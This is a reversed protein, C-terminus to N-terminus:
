TIRKAVMHMFDKLLVGGDEIVLNKFEEDNMLVGMEYGVYKRLLTRLDADTHAYVYRLLTVIDGTRARHLTYGALAYHLEELALTKLPQIDYQDAFAYLRAHSLFVETYDENDERNVPTSPVTITDRRVTYKRRLFLEKLEQATKGRKTKRVIKTLFERTRDTELEVCSFGGFSPDGFRPVEVSRPNFRVITDSQLDVVPEATECEEKQPPTPSPPSNIEIKIDAPTYYGKYAWEIFRRFTGGDVEKLVAFGNEAEAMHGNIMCGLPRSHHSVLDAHIYYPNGDVIFKFPASAYVSPM